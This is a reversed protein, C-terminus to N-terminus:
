ETSTVISSPFGLFALKMETQRFVLETPSVLHHQRVASNAATIKWRAVM